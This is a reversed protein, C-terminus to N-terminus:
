SHIPNHRTSQFDLGVHTVETEEKINNNKLQELFEPTVPEFKGFNIGNGHTWFGVISGNVDLVPSTCDGNRTAATCWGLPSAFGQIIEPRVKTGDGYGYVSVIESTQLVRFKRITFPSKVGNVAFSGIEENHSQLTNAKLELSHVHNRAYYNRTLDNADLCHLVVFMRNSVLTGTCLYRQQDDYIKYIGADLIAPEFSQKKLTAIEEKMQKIQKDKEAKAKKLWTLYAGTNVKVDHKSKKIKRQLDSVEKVDKPVEKTDWFNGHAQGFAREYNEEGEYEDHEYVFSSLGEDYRYTKSKAKAFGNEGGPFFLDEDFFDEPGDSMDWPNRQQKNPGSRQKHHVRGKNSNGNKAAARHAGAGGYTKGQETMETERSRHYAAALAVIGVGVAFIKGKNKYTWKKIDEWLEGRNREQEQEMSEAKNQMYEEVTEKANDRCYTDLMTKLGWWSQAKAKQDIWWLRFYMWDDGMVDDRERIKEKAKELDEDTEHYQPVENWLEWFMESVSPVPKDIKIENIDDLGQMPVATEATSDANEKLSTTKSTESNADSYAQAQTMHNAYDKEKEEEVDSVYNEAKRLEDSLELYDNFQVRNKHVEDAVRFKVHSAKGTADFETYSTREDKFPIEDNGPTTEGKVFPQFKMKPMKIPKEEQEKEKKNLMEVYKPDIEIKSMVIKHKAVFKNLWPEFLEQSDFTLDEGFGKFYIPYIAGEMSMYAPIKDIHVMRATQSDMDIIKVADIGEELFHTGVGYYKDGDKRRLKSEDVNSHKKIEEQYERVTEAVKTKIDFRTEAIDDFSKEGSWLGSVLEIFWTACPIQMLIDLLPKGWEALKKAGFLPAAIVMLLSVIGTMFMGLKNMDERKGQPELSFSSKGDKFLWTKVFSAGIKVATTQWWMTKVM